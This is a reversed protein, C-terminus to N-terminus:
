RQYVRPNSPEMMDQLFNLFQKLFPFLFTVTAMHSFDCCESPSSSTLAWEQSPCLQPRFDYQTCNYLSHNFVWHQRGLVILKLHPLSRWEPTDAKGHQRIASSHISSVQEGGRIQKSSYDADLVRSVGVMNETARAYKWQGRQLHDSALSHLPSTRRHQLWDRSWLMSSAQHIAVHMLGKKWMHFWHTSPSTLCPPSAPTRHSNIIQQNHPKAKNDVVLQMNIDRPWVALGPRRVSYSILSTVSPWPGPPPDPAASLHRSLM